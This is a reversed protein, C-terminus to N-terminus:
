ASLVLDMRQGVALSVRDLRVVVASAVHFLSDVVLTLILGFGVDAHGRQHLNHPMQRSPPELDHVAAEYADYPAALVPIAAYLLGLRGFGRRIREASM